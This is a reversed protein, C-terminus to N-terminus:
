KWLFGRIHFQWCCQNWNRAQRVSIIASAMPEILRRQLQNAAVMSRFVCVSKDFKSAFKNQQGDTFNGTPSFQDQGLLGCHREVRSSSLQKRRSRYFGVHWRHGTNCVEGVSQIVRFVLRM